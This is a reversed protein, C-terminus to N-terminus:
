SSGAKDPPHSSNGAAILADTFQGLDRINDFDSDSQAKERYVDNLRIAALLDAIISETSYNKHNLSKICARNYLAWANEPNRELAETILQVPYSHNKEDIYNLANALGVKADPDSPDIKLAEGFLECAQTYQEERLADMGRRVISQAKTIKELMSELNEKAEGIRRDLIQLFHNEDSFDSPAYLVRHNKLLTIFFLAVLLAPFLMLFWVYLRQTEPELLPLVVTGGIEALGAFIAIITLPNSVPKIKELMRIEM